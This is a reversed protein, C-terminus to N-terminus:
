RSSSLLCAGYCVKPLDDGSVVLVQLGFTTQPPLLRSPPRRTRKKHVEEAEEKKADMDERAALLVRGRWNSAFEPEKNMRTKNKGISVREPAGYFDVWM